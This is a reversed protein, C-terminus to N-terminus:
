EDRYVEIIMCDKQVTTIANVATTDSSIELLQRFGEDTERGRIACCYVQKENM